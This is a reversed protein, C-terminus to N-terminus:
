CVCVCGCGWVWKLESLVGCVCMKWCVKLCVVLVSLVSLGDDWCMGCMWVDGCCFWFEFCM